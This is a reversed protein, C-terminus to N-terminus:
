ESFNFHSFFHNKRNYDESYVLNGDEDFDARITIWLKPWKYRTLGSSKMKYKFNPGLLQIFSNLKKNPLMKQLRVVYIYCFIRYLFLLFLILALIAFVKMRCIM